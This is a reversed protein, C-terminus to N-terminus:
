NYSYVDLGRSRLKGAWGILMRLACDLFFAWLGKRVEHMEGFINSEHLRTIKVISYVFRECVERLARKM